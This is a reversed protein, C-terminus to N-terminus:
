LTFMSFLRSTWKQFQSKDLHKKVQQIKYIVLKIKEIDDEAKIIYDFAGYKLSNIAIQMDSQASILVLYIDPNFRKIKKLTELGNLPQMNYDIFIIEPEQYLQNLCDQGNDFCNIDTYGINNLCQTYIGQCFPDDDIIFIKGTPPKNM